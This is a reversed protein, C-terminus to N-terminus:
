NLKNVLYTVIGTIVTVALVLGSVIMALEMEIGGAFDASNLTIRCGICYGAM